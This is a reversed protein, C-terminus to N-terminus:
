GSAHLLRSLIDQASEQHKWPPRRAQETAKPPMRTKHGCKLCTTQIFKVTSGSRTLAEPPCSPDCPGQPNPNLFALKSQRTRPKTTGKARQKLMSLDKADTSNLSRYRREFDGNHSLVYHRRVWVFFEKLAASTSGEDSQMVQTQGYYKVM